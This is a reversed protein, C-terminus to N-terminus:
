EDGNGDRLRELRSLIEDQWAGQERLRDEIIDKWADGQAIHKVFRDQLQKVLNVLDQWEHDDTLTGHATDRGDRLRANEAELERIRREFVQWDMVKASSQSCECQKDAGLSRIYACLDVLEQHCMSFPADDNTRRVMQEYLSRGIEIKGKGM